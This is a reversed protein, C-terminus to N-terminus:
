NRNKNYKNGKSVEVEVIDFKLYKYEENLKGTYNKIFNEM